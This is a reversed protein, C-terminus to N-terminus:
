RYRNESRAFQVRRARSVSIRFGTIKGLRNRTFLVEGGLNPQTFGDRYRPQLYVPPQVGQQWYLSDGQCYLTVTAQVESAQYTGAYRAFTRKSQTVPKQRIYVTTDSAASVVRLRHPSDFIYTQQNRWFTNASLAILEGMPEVRLTNNNAVLHLPADDRTSSYWGTFPTIAEASLTVKAPIPSVVHPLQLLFREVEYMLYPESDFRSTNSLWAFSMNCSPFHSLYGRYSATAGVHRICPLGYAGSVDLGAAYSNLLGNSLTDPRLMAPLLSPSGFKGSLYYRNWRLLDEATTLLGGPGYVSENPLQTYYAKGDWGYAMARHPVIRRPSDRWQTYSMGAPEFIYRQTFAMLSMQAAREAVVTLLLYNSNSYQYAAGPLNNLAKQRCIMALVEENSYMKTTRAWGSLTALAGWDRLGSTHHLLHHITIPQEYVPLEPIFKRVDDQLSLKGQQELLLIAAATFQKSVSGAESPSATTFPVEHEVDALGFARSYIVAEGRSIAVMCGPADAAYYRKFMEDLVYATDQWLQASVAGWFAMGVFFLLMKKKM